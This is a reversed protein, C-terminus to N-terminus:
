AARNLLPHRRWAENEMLKRVHAARPDQREVLVALWDSLLRGGKDNNCQLCVVLTGQGPMVSKPIVHDRTPFDPKRSKRKGVHAIRMTRDCYPCPKGHATLLVFKFGMDM